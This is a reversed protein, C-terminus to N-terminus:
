VTLSLWEETAIAYLCVVRNLLQSMRRQNALGASILSLLATPRHTLTAVTMQLRAAVLAGM